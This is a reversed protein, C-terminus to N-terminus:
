PRGAVVMLEACLEPHLKGVEYFAQVLPDPWEEIQGNSLPKLFVGGVHGVTLGAAGVDAMLTERTYVRRHGIRVDADNLETTTAIMGMAVGVQRHISYANPVTIIAVGGPELLDGVTALLAVPDAVHELVHGLVASAFARGPAYEEFLSHVAEVQPLRRAVEAVYEETGDVATLDDFVTALRATMRGDASGLEVCSSRGELFPRMADFRFDILRANFGHESSFAPALQSLRVREDDIRREAM